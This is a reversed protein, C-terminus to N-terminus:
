RSKLVENIKQVETKPLLSTLLRTLKPNPKTGMQRISNLLAELLKARSRYYLIKEKSIKGLMKRQKGLRLLYFRKIKGTKILQNLDKLLLSYSSLAEQKIEEFGCVGFKDIISYIKQKRVLAKAKFGQKSKGKLPSRAKLGKSYKAITGKSVKLKASIKSLPLGELYLKKLQEIQGFSLRRKPFNAELGLKKRYEWIARPYSSLRAAIEKDSLGQRHLRLFKEPNM